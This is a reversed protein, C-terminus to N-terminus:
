NTAHNGRNVSVEITGKMGMAEHPTCVYKHEGSEFRKDIVVDYYEGKRMLFPGMRAEGLKTGKPVKKFEVNHPVIDDLIFRVTDGPGVAVYDPQFRWQASGKDVMKVTVVRNDQALASPSVGFTTASLGLLVATLIRRCPQCTRHSSM